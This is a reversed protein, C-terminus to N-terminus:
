VSIKIYKGKRCNLCILDTKAAGEIGSNKDGKCLPFFCRIEGCNSCKYVYVSEHGCGNCKVIEM